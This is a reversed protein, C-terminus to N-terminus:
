TRHRGSLLWMNRKSTRHFQFCSNATLALVFQAQRIDDFGFYKKSGDFSRRDWSLFRDNNCCVFRTADPSLVVSSCEGRLSGLTKCNQAVVDSEYLVTIRSQFLINDGAGFVLVYVDNKEMLTAYTRENIVFFKYYGVWALIKTGDRSFELSRVPVNASTQDQPCVLWDKHVIKNIIGRPSSITLSQAPTCAQQEIINKNIDTVVIEQVSNIASKIWYTVLTNIVNEPASKSAALADYLDFVKVYSDANPLSEVASRLSKKDEPTLNIYANYVALEAALLRNTDVVSAAAIVDHVALLYLFLSVADSQMTTLREKLSEDLLFLYGDQHISVASASAMSGAWTYGNAEFIAAMAPYEQALRKKAGAVLNEDVPEIAQPLDNYDVINASAGLLSYIVGGDRPILGKALAETETVFEYRVLERGLFGTVKPLNATKNIREIFRDNGVFVLKQNKKDFLVNLLVAGYYTTTEYSPIQTKEARVQKALEVTGKRTDVKLALDPIGSFFSVSWLEPNNLAVAFTFLGSEPHHEVWFSHDKGKWTWVDSSAGLRVPDTFGQARLNDIITLFDHRTQVPLSLYSYSESIFHVDDALFANNADPDLPVLDSFHLALVKVLEKAVVIPAGDYLDANDGARFLKRFQSRPNARTAGSPVSTMSFAGMGKQHM